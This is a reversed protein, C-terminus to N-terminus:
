TARRCSTGVVDESALRMTDDSSTCQKYYIASRRSEDSLQHLHQLVGSASSADWMGVFRAQGSLRIRAPLDLSYIRTCIAVAQAEALGADLICVYVAFERFM